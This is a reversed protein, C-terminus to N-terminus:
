DIPNATTLVTQCVGQFTTAVTVANPDLTTTTQQITVSPVRIECKGNSQNLFYLPHLERAKAAIAGGAVAVVAIASLLFKVKKM